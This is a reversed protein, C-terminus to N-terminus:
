RTNPGTILAIAQSIREAAAETPVAYLAVLESDGAFGPEFHGIAGRWPMLRAAAARLLPLAADARADPPPVPDDGTLYLQIVRETRELTGGQTAATWCRALAPGDLVLADSLAFANPPPAGDDFAIDIRSDDDDLYLRTTVSDRRGADFGRLALRLCEAIQEPDGQLLLPEDPALSDHSRVVHPSQARFRDLLDYATYEPTRHLILFRRAAEIAEFSDRLVRDLEPAWTDADRPRHHRLEAAHRHLAREVATLAGTLHSNFSDM